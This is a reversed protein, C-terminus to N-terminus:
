VYPKTWNYIGGRLVFKSFDYNVQQIALRAGIELIPRSYNHAGAQNDYFRGAPDVMAYSGKMQDNSESVINTIYNLSSHRDVFSKFQEDTIKFEDIKVDNQGKMPLSQLLKWRKPKAYTIFEHMDEDSNKAHVVTNIKLGYSYYKIQDVLSKYNELNIAKKGSIARGSAINTQEDLSDISLAIWDLHERNTELFEKSLKSGNSVIMTTMGVTRAIQILDGLWPCLTPEGGAFTIKEFGIEALQHIVEVAQEKPLHGKPLISQKVDQFTAFCFKCRM